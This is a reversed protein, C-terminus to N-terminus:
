GLDHNCHLAGPKLVIYCQVTYPDAFKKVIIM